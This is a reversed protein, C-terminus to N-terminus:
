NSLQVRFFAGGNAVLVMVTSNTEEVFAIGELELDNKINNPFESMVSVIKDKDPDIFVVRSNTPYQNHSSVCAILGNIYAQGQVTQIFPTKFSRVFAPTFTGDGNDTEAEKLDWVSVIMYNTGNEDTGFSNESYGVQYIIRNLPDLSHGAYFGTKELPFTYTKVLQTATRTIRTVYVKATNSDATIYALPFEDGEAYYDNSFDLTDGHDSKVGLEAITNGTTYDMLVLVDNSYLQFVVGNCITMGQHAYVNGLTIDAIPPSWFGLQKVSYKQKQLNVAAGDVTYDGGEGVAARLAEVEGNLPVPITLLKNCEPTRIAGEDMRKMVLTYLGGARLTTEKVWGTDSILNGDVYAETDWEIVGVRYADDPILIRTDVVPTFGTKTGIRTASAALKNGDSAIHWYHAAWVDEGFVKNVAKTARLLEDQQTPIPAFRIKIAARHEDMTDTLDQLPYGGICVKIYGDNGVTYSTGANLWGSDALFGYDRNLEQVAWQITGTSEVRTGANARIYGVTRARNIHYPNTIEATDFGNSVGGLECPVQMLTIESASYLPAIQERVAEGASGYTKGDVGVRVDVLEAGDSTGGNTILNDLRAREVALAQTNAGYASLTQKYVDPLPEPFNGESPPGQVFSLILEESSRTISGSVGRVSFHVKGPEATVEWPIVCTDDTMVVHFVRSKDKYFVAEKGYGSWYSDFTVEVQFENEGGSALKPSNTLTLTQDVCKASILTRM